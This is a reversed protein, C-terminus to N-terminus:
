PTMSPNAKKQQLNVAKLSLVDGGSNKFQLVFPDMPEPVQNM